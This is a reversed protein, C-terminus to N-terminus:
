IYKGLLPCFLFFTIMHSYARRRSNFCTGTPSLYLTRQRGEEPYTRTKWGEPVKPDHETSTYKQNNGNEFPNDKIKIKNSADKRDCLDSSCNLDDKHTNLVKLKDEVADILDEVDCNMENLFLEIDFDRFLDM